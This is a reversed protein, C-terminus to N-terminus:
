ALRPACCCCVATCHHYLSMSRGVQREQWAWPCYMEGLYENVFGGAPLGGEKMLVVGM